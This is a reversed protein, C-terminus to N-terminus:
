THKKSSLQLASRPLTLLRISETNNVIIGSYLCDGLTSSYSVASVAMLADDFAPICRLGVKWIITTTNAVWVSYIYRCALGLDLLQEFDDCSQLVILVIEPRSSFFSGM